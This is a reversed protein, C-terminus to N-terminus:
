GMTALRKGTRDFWVLQGAQAIGASDYVLVGNGSASFFANYNTPNRNVQEAIPIPGGSCCRKRGPPRCYMHPTLHTTLYGPTTAGLYIGTDTPSAQVTYLLHRGDPLFVPWTHAREQRSADLSTVPKTEGSGDLCAFPADWHWPDRDHRGPEMHRQPRPPRRLTNATARRVCRDKKLKGGAFFRGAAPGRALGPPAGL